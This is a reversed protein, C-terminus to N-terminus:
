SSQHMYWIQIHDKVFFFDYKSTLSANKTRIETADFKEFFMEFGNFLPSQHELLVAFWVFTTGSLLTGILGVKVLGIPYWHLHLRIVLHM